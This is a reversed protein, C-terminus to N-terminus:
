RLEHFDSKCYIVKVLSILENFALIDLTTVLVLPLVSESHNSSLHFQSILKYATLLFMNSIKVFVRSHFNACCPILITLLNFNCQLSSFWIVLWFPFMWLLTSHLLLPLAGVKWFFVWFDGVCGRRIYYGFEALGALRSSVKRWTNKARFIASVEATM